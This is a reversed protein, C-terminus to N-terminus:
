DCSELKLCWYFQSNETTGRRRKIEEPTVNFITAMSKELYDITMAVHEESFMRLSDTANASFIEHKKSSTKTQVYIFMGGSDITCMLPRTNKDSINEMYCQGSATMTDSTGFCLMLSTYYNRRNSSYETTIADFFGDIMTQFYRIDGDTFKPTQPKSMTYRDPDSMDWSSHPAYLAEISRPVFQLGPSEHFPPMGFEPHGFFKPRDNFRGFKYKPLTRLIVFNNDQRLKDFERRPLEFQAVTWASIQEARLERIPCNLAVVRITINEHPDCFLHDPLFLFHLEKRTSQEMANVIAISIRHKNMFGCSSFESISDILRRVDVSTVPSEDLALIKPANFYESKYQALEQSHFEFLVKVEGRLDKLSMKLKSVEDKLVCVDRRLKDLEMEPTAPTEELKDTMRLKSCM